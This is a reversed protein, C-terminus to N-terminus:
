RCVWGASSERDGLGYHVADLGYKGLFGLDECIEHQPCCATDSEETKQSAALKEDGITDCEVRLYM